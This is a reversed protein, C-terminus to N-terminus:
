HGSNRIISVFSAFIFGLVSCAIVFVGGVIVGLVTRAWDPVGLTNTFFDSTSQLITIITEM